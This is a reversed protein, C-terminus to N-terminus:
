INFYGAPNVATGNKRIEFHLHPGTSWGTTGVEGITEGQEVMDGVSVYVNNQHGYLTSMGGGHDIIVYRGYGRGPTYSNSAYIVKGANAARIPQQFIAKGSSSRGAIDIGTHYDSGGFRWGFRSTITRYGSVPWLFDGGVYDGISANEAYIRQIEAQVEKEEQMKQAKKAEFEKQLDALQMEQKAVEQVKVALNAKQTSMDSKDAEVQAKNKQIEALADEIARKAALLEDIMKKDHTSTRELMETRTLFDSYSDAGLVVGLTTADDNIYMARMRQKFAEYNKDIEAQKDKIEKEKQDINGELTYIRSTLLEIEQQALYVQNQLQKKEKEKKTKDNKTKDIDAQIAAQEKKLASIRSNLDKIENKYSDDAAQFPAAQATFLMTVCIAAAAVRKWLNKKMRPPM